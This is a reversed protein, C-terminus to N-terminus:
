LKKKNLSILELLYRFIEGIKHLVFDVLWGFFGGM